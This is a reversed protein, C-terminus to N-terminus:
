LLSPMLVGRLEKSWCPQVMGEDSVSGVAKPDGAVCCGVVSDVCCVWPLRSLDGRCGHRVTAPLGPGGGAACAWACLRSCCYACLRSCVCLRSCGPLVSGRDLLERALVIAIRWSGLGRHISEIHMCCQPCERCRSSALTVGVCTVWHRLIYSDNPNGCSRTSGFGLSDGPKVAGGVLVQWGRM